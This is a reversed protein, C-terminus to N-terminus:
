IKSTCEFVMVPRALALGFVLAAGAEKLSRACANMTAGTTVVDDVILVSLNRVREPHRVEFADSVNEQRAEGSLGTQTQTYKKRLLIKSLIPIGTWESLGAGIWESQNYGRERQRVKHLPLSLIIQFDDKNLCSALMEGATKGFFRALNKMQSYKMQHILQELDANFEWCTFIGDFFPEESM